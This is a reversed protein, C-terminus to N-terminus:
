SESRLDSLLSKYFEIKEESPKGPEMLPPRSRIASGLMNRAVDATQGPVNGVKQYNNLFFQLSEWWFPLGEAVQLTIGSSELYAGAVGYNYHAILDNRATLLAAQAYTFAEAEKNENWKQVTLHLYSNLLIGDSRFVAEGKPIKLIEAASEYDRSNYAYIGELVRRADNVALNDPFNRKAGQYIRTASEWDNINLAFTLVDLARGPIRINDLEKGGLSGTDEFYLDRRGFVVARAGYFLPKWDPSKRFWDVAERHLFGVCWIDCNMKNIFQQTNHGKFANYYEAYWHQFPFYRPDIMHKQEPYLAWMLYAGSDYDNGIKFTSLHKQIYQAEEVPNTMSMGYGFWRNLVPTKTKERLLVGSVTLGFMVPISILVVRGVKNVPSLMRAHNKLLLIGSAVFVAGWFYTTRLMYCYLLAFFGATIIISWDIRKKSISIVVMPVFIILSAFLYDPLHLLNGQSSFATQFDSVTKVNSVSTGGLFGRALNLPYSIGYPTALLSAGSLLTSIFLHRRTGLPLARRPSFLANVEEGLWMLCIFAAGFVVGGHSNVWVLMILPLFYPLRSNRNTTLRIRVWVYTVLIMAIFSFLEPKLVIGSHNSMAMGVLAITWTVPHTLTNTRRAIDATLGLFFLCSLYKIVFISAIGGVSYLFYFFLQALWCCYVTTHDVPSWTFAAHDVLLTGENLIFEGYAMQWWLDGDKIPSTVLVIM